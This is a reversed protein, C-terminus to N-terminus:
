VDRKKRLMDGPALGLPCNIYVAEQAHPASDRSEGKQTIIENVTFVGSLKPSLIDLTDGVSFKGRQEILILGKSDKEEKVVGVFDFNRQPINRQTDQGQERPNGYYFGTTFARSGAKNVEGSLSEDFEKGAAIDNLARRYANVVCGVYYASKMRGEIKLSKIGSSLVDKLHALMNLDKSNFIYTGRDDAFVPFYEGDYGNKM